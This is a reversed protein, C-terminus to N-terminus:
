PCNLLVGASTGDSASCQASSSGNFTLTVSGGNFSSVTMGSQPCMNTCALYNTIQTSTGSFNGLGSFSGNITACGTGTPWVLTYMGMHMLTNGYAGTGTSQPNAQLTKLGNVVTFTGSSSLNITAGNAKLNNGTLQTQVTNGVVNLTATFTGSSAVLGLPGSCNNLTFTVINGSATAAACGNPFYRSVGAAVASAAGNSAASADTSTFGGDANGGPVAAQSTGPADAVVLAGLAIPDLSAYYWAAESNTAALVDWSTTAVSDPGCVQVPASAFNSCSAVAIVGLLPTLLRDFKKM